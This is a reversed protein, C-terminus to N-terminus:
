DADALPVIDVAGLRLTDPDGESEAAFEGLAEADPDWENEADDDDVEAYECSEDM